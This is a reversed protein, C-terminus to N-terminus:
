FPRPIDSDDGVGDVLRVIECLLMVNIRECLLRMRRLVPCKKLLAFRQWHVSLHVLKELRYM